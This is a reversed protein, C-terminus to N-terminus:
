FYSIYAIKIIRAVTINDDNLGYKFGVDIQIPNFFYGLGFNIHGPNDGLFGDYEGCIVFDKTIAFAIGAGADFNRTIDNFDNSYVTGTLQLYIISFSIEKTLSIFVGKAPIDIYGQGEYGISLAPIVGEDDTLRIKGLFKPPLIYDVKGTGILNVINFAGGIMLKDFIGIYIRTLIGGGPYLKIDCRLEAKILTNATPLDVLEINRAQSAFICISFIFIFFIVIYVKKM